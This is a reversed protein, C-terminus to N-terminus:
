EVVIGNVMGMWLIRIYYVNLVNLVNNKTMGMYRGYGSDM